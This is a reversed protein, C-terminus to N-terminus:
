RKAHIDTREAAVEDPGVIVSTCPLWVSFVTVYRHHVSAEQFSPQQLPRKRLRRLRNPWVWMGPIADDGANVEDVGFPPRGFSPSQRPIQQYERDVQM